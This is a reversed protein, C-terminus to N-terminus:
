TVSHNVFIEDYKNQQIALYKIDYWGDPAVYFLHSPKKKEDIRRCLSCWETLVLM